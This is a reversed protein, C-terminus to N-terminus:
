RGDGGGAYVPQRKGRGPPFLHRYIAEVEEQELKIVGDVLEEPTVVAKSVGERRHRTTGTLIHFVEHALVRGLARGFLNQTQVFSEGSTASRIMSRVGDCDVECYSLIRGETM